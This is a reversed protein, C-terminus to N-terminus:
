DPFVRTRGLRTRRGTRGWDAAGVVVALFGYVFLVVGGQDAQGASAAVDQEGHEAIFGAVLGGWLGAWPM